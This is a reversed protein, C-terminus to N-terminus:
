QTDATGSSVASAASLTSTLLAEIAGPDVPRSFLFGQGRECNEGQLRELQWQEEIGEALTEIGLTRGLQVLTHVLAVSEASDGMAAVFSRDIKLADVPFQRLYALSSYGTGFDDVAVLVGLEKLAKLRSVTADTDRMLTTETVELILSGPDLGSRSLAGRVHDVFADIELQRMSVNVSMTLAHGRRHWQAAQECAETLVWHGVDVILGTDELSPIFEDPALVGRTPHRWRLLAEVGCARVSDLDFVPQYLLLFEHHELASRLDMELELRDLVASQMAPEFMMWRDKGMAKARYLAIDADRLLENASERVGTAIGVSASIALPVQDYGEICFPERLVDRIRDAVLEPGAAMPVSETLVVFEDGGMRGVTDSARLMGEFRHAVAQLLRDGAEHGLTDNIDKFNDLDVFLAAVSLNERRARAVMQHARDLILTRNPLGTLADHVASHALREEADKRRTIDRLNAVYGNVDPDTRLDTIAAEFWLWDGDARRLRIEEHITSSPGQAGGMIDTLGSQDEPHLLTDAMLNQDEASPYGLVSEFAPSAYTVVGGADAVIVIDSSSTVLAAFRRESRRLEADSAERAADARGLLGIVFLAGLLGLAAVGHVLPRRILTPALHLAIALQGLIMAVATWVLCPVTAKSGFVELATAAGFLFGISLIPGWGTSYAVVAIVAMAAGVYAGLHWRRRSEAWLASYVVRSAGAALVLTIYLWYPEDAIFHFWRFLVFAAVVPLVALLAPEAANTRLRSLFPTLPGPDDEAPLLSDM